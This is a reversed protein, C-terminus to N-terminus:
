LIFRYMLVYFCLLFVWTMDAEKDVFAVRLLEFLM